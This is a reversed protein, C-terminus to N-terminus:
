DTKIKQFKYGYKCAISKVLNESIDSKANYFVTLDKMISIRTEQSINQLLNSAIKAGQSGIDAEVVGLAIDAGNIVTGEDSTVLPKGLKAAQQKLTNIGSAILSDKLIFIIESDKHISKSVSYLDVLNPVLLKQVTIGFSQALKQFQMVEEQTKPMNSHVLTIKKIKPFLSRIFELSQSIPIEDQVVSINHVRRKKLDEESYLAALGLVPKNEIINAASQLVGTAVTVVLDTEKDKHAQQIMASQINYDGQANLLKIKLPEKYIELLTKQFGSVIDNLAQHQIPLIITIKKDSLGISPSCCSFSALFILIYRLM